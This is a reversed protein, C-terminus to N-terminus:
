TNIWRIWHPRLLTPRLQLHPQISTTTLLTVSSLPPLLVPLLCNYLKSIRSLKPGHLLELFPKKGYWDYFLRNADNRFLLLLYFHLKKTILHPFDWFFLQLVQLKFFHVMAVTLYSCPILAFKPPFVDSSREITLAIIAYTLSSLIYTFRNEIPFLSTCFVLSSNMSVQLLGFVKCM